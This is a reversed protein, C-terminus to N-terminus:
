WPALFKVFVTKGSTASEWTEPTLEMAGAGAFAGVLLIFKAMTVFLTATGFGLLLQVAQSL